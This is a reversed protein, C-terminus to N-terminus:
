DQELVRQPSATFPNVVRVGDFDQGDQLDESLFYRCGGIQASALMLADWFGIKYRDQLAWGAELHDLELGAPIWAQMDRVDERLLERSQGSLKRAAVWYYERVVQASVVAARAETLAAIWAAAQKQKSPNAQDKAYVLTTTDIFCSTM